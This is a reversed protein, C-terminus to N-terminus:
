GVASYTVVPGEEWERRRVFRLLELSAKREARARGLRYWYEPASDGAGSFITIRYDFRGVQQVEACVEGGDIVTSM